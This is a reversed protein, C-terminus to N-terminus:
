GSRQKFTIQRLTAPDGLLAKALIPLRERPSTDIHKVLAVARQWVPKAARWQQTLSRIEGADWQPYTYSEGLESPAIDLIGFGTENNAWQYLDRLGDWPKRWARGAPARVTKIRTQGLAAPLRSAYSKLCNFDAVGFWETASTDNYADKSTRHAIICVAMAPNHIEDEWPDLGFADVPIFDFFEGEEMAEAIWIENCPFAAFCHALVARYHEVPSADRMDRSRQPDIQRLLDAFYRLDTTEGGFHDIFFSRRYRPQPLTKFVRAWDVGVRGGGNALEAFLPPTSSAIM